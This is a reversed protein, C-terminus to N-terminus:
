TGAPREADHDDQDAPAPPAPPPEPAPAPPPAGGAVPADSAAAAAPAGPPEDAPLPEADSPMGGDEDPPADPPPAPRSAAPASNAPPSVVASKIESTLETRAHLIEDQVDRAARRFQEMYKGITRAIDPISKAGFLLLFALVVIVAEGGGVGMFALEIV